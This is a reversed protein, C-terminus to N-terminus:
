YSYRRVLGYAISIVQFKLM